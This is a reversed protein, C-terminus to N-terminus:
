KKWSGTSIGVFLEVRFAGAVEEDVGHRGNVLTGFEFVAAYGLSGCDVIVVAAYSCHQFLERGFVSVGREPLDVHISNEVLGKIIWRLEGLGLADLISVVIARIIRSIPHLQGRHIVLMWAAFIRHILIGPEVAPM